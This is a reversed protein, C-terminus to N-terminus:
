LNEELDKILLKLSKMKKSYVLDIIKFFIGVSVILGLAIYTIALWLEKGSAQDFKNSLKDWGGSYLLGVTFGAITLVAGSIKYHNMFKELIRYSHKLYEYTNLTISNISLQFLLKNYYYVTSIFIVLCFGAELFLQYYLLTVLIIPYLIFNLKHEKKLNKIIRDLMNTSDQQLLKDVEEDQLPNKSSDLKWIDKIDKDM